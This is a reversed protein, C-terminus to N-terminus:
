RAKAEASEMLEKVADHIPQLFGHTRSDVRKEVAAFPYAMAEHRTARVAYDRGNEDNVVVWEMGFDAALRAGLFAGLMEVVEKESARRKRTDQQWLRFAEDADALTPQKAAPVYAAVFLAARAGYARFTKLEGASAPEIKQPTPEVATTPTSVQASAALPLGGCLALLIIGITKKM